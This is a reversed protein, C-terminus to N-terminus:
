ISTRSSLEGDVLRYRRIRAAFWGVRFAVPVIFIAGFVLRPPPNHDRVILVIAATTALIVVVVSLLTTLRVRTGAPAPAFETDPIYSTPNM